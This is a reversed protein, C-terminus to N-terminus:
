PPIPLKKVLQGDDGGYSTVVTLTINGQAAETDRPEIEGGCGALGLCLARALLLAIRKKM